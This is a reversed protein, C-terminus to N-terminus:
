RSADYATSSWRRGLERNLRRVLQAARSDHIPEELHKQWDVAWTVLDSRARRGADAAKKRQKAYETCGLGAITEESAGVAESGRTALAIRATVPQLV